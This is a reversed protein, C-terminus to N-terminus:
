IKGEKLLGRWTYNQSFSVKNKLFTKAADTSDPFYWLSWAKGDWWCRLGENHVEYEGVRIPKTSAPFWPTMEM